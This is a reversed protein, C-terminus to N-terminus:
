GRRHSFFQCFNTEAKVSRARIAKLEFEHGFDQFADQWARAHQDVSDILTGDMDFIVAKVM